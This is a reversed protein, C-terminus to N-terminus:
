DGWPPVHKQEGPKMGGLHALVSAYDKHSPPYVLRADGIMGGPGEARLDLIITGDPQMTAMGISGSSASSAASPAPKQPAGPTTTCGALVAAVGLLRILRGM